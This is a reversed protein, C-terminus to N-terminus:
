SEAPLLGARAAAAGIVLTAYSGPRLEFSVKLRYRDEHLEDAQPHEVTLSGPLCWLQRANRPLYARTLIRAKLDSQTLGDRQLAATMARAFPEPYRARMNPLALRLERWEDPPEGPLALRQDAITLWATEGATPRAALAESVMRNWLASQYAALYLALLRAPILNLAKRYGNPHDILYTLVSRWNSPNPAIAMIAAWDPWLHAAKHKFRRVPRPDSAFPVAIYAYLAREADRQLITQGVYGWGPAFSGFRQADFYNPLGALGIAQLADRLREAENLALDRIVLLFRNGALDTPTLPRETFGLREAGFASGEILAPANGPLSLHQVAIADKDKLAPLIVRRAPLHLRRAIERQVDLTTVGRKSLRYLGWAGHPQPAVSLLEEVRFDEPVAKLKM